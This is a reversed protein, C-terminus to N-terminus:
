WSMKEWVGLSKSSVQLVKGKEPWPKQLTSYYHVCYPRRQLVHVFSCLTLQIKDQLLGETDPLTLSLLFYYSSSYIDFDLYALTNVVFGNKDDYDGKDWREELINTTYAYTKGEEM